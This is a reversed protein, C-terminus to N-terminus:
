NTYGPNQTLNPNRQRENNSIPFLLHSEEFTHGWVNTHGVVDVFSVEGKNTESTVPFKRTRQVDFWIRHDLALERLRETWVEEVFEQESLSELNSVITARDTQWYARDRVDALYGVAEATVGETRAIAEAAILLVEAYRYAKVDQSSRGTEFLAEDDHWLYPSMDFTRTTDGGSEMEYTISNHFFQKNQVRLDEAPDYIWLLEKVPRYGNNTIDYKFLGWTAARNPYCYAPKRFNDDIGSQYEVSYIYESEVDSTRIKNYASNSLEAGNELLAHNGNNIISRAQTAAEAYHDNQLPFGSMNLYVDALLTSVSGESIRFGNMPMPSKGLNGNDLAWKLDDIIQQYVEASANREPYLNDLSEYPETILPVDGFMKVLYYYNWARFFRAQAELSKAEADTLGPTEPTYKIAMNARGIVNYCPDWMGDIYSAMNEPDVTLNHAHEVHVEQGKYENDYLGTMYGSMMMTSGYYASGIDYHSVVGDRYLGNVVNRAHAAETFYQNTSMESKPNEELFDECSTLFFIGALVLM